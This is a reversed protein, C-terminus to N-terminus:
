EDSEMLLEDMPMSSAALPDCESDPNVGEILHMIEDMARDLADADVKERTGSLQTFQITSRGIDIRDGSTMLHFDLYKGNVSLGNRGGTVRIKWTSGEKSIIAHQRSVVEDRLLIDSSPHRGVSLPGENFFYEGILRRGTYVRFVAM